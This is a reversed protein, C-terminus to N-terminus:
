GALAELLIPELTPCQSDPGPLRADPAEGTPPESPEVAAQQPEQAAFDTVGILRLAGAAFGARIAARSATVEDAVMGERLAAALGGAAEIANFRRWAAAALDGSLAEFAGAGAVPDAVAGLSGEEMLILQINRASRRAFPTPPGLTDTFAGLVMADAGGVAAAFAAATLRVMNTWPDASTLMRRSSRAEIKAPAASGLAGAFRTWVLRAARLKAISLIPDADASLGLVIGGLAAEVSLGAGTLAKAYAVAAALAFALEEAPSGGAEHVVVGSALSFTAKPHIPALRAAIDAANAVHDEIPGPSTGALAFASLPDLHLALPAAPSGKAAASLWHAAAPGIFGAELGIPAVDILVGDLAAALAEASGIAAGDGAGAHIAVIGSGAGGALEALLTERVAGPGGHGVRARIDWSRGGGRPAPLFRRPELSGEYLPRIALGDPGESVLTEAEAGALTKSVLARWAALEPPPFGEALPVVPDPM